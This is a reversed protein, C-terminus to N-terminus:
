CCSLYYICKKSQERARIHYYITQKNLKLIHLGLTFICKDCFRYLEDMTLPRKVSVQVIFIKPRGALSKCMDATFSSWLTDVKYYDDYAYLKGKGRGHTLVAVVICDENRHDDKSVTLASL